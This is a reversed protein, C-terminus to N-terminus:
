RGEAVRRDGAHRHVRRDAPRERHGEGDDHPGSRRRLARHGVDERRHPRLGDPGRRLHLRRRVEERHRGRDSLVRAAAHHLRRRGPDARRPLRRRPGVDDHPDAGRHGERVRRRLLPVDAEAPLPLLVAVHAHKVGAVQAPLPKWTSVATLSQALMSRGSYGHRLAIIETSGTHLQALMVATEDAETGSTALFSQRLRGPAIRALREALEVVPLTPYLTSVHSLRAIQAIVAGNVREDAHGISVTLIGGFFDLYENGDADQIRLGKGDTLVLPEQYYLITAPLIYEKHKERTERSLASAPAQTKITTSM